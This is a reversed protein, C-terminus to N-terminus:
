KRLYRTTSATQTITAGNPSTASITFGAEVSEPNTGGAYTHIFVLKTVKVNTNNLTQAPGTTTFTMNTGSLSITVPTGYYKVVNLSTGSLNAGPTVVIQMGAMAWNIKGLLYGKEEQLMSKTQNRDSNEFLLYVSSIIGTMLISFLALYVITEILTFGHAAGNKRNVEVLYIRGLSSRNRNKTSYSM